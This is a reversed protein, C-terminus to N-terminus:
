DGFFVEAIEFSLFKNSPDKELSTKFKIANIKSYFAKIQFNHTANMVVFFSKETNEEIKSEFDGKLKKLNHLNSETFSNPSLTLLVDLADVLKQYDAVTKITM